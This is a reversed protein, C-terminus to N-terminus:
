KREEITYTVGPGGNYEVTVGYKEIFNAVSLGKARAEREVVEYPFTVQISNKNKMIRRFHYFKRFGSM